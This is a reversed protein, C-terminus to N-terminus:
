EAKKMENKQYTNSLTQLCFWQEFDTNNWGETTAVAM